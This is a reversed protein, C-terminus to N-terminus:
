FPVSRRQHVSMTAAAVTKKVILNAIKQMMKEPFNLAQLAMQGNEPPDEAEFLGDESADDQGVGGVVEQTHPPDEARRGHHLAHHDICNEERASHEDM